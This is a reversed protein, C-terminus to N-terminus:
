AKFITVEIEQNHRLGETERTHKKVYVELDSSVHGVHWGHRSGKIHFKIDDSDKVGLSLCIMPSLKFVGGARVHCIQTVSDLVQIQPM